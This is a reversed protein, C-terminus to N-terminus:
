ASSPMRSLSRHSSNLRTSKRDVLMLGELMREVDNSKQAIMIGILSAMANVGLAPSIQQSDLWGCLAKSAEAIEKMQYESPNNGKAM